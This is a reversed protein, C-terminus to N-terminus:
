DRMCVTYNKSSMRNSFRPASWDVVEDSIPRVSFSYGIVESSIKMKRIRAAQSVTLEMELCDDKFNGNNFMQVLVKATLSEASAALPSLLLLIVITHKFLKM